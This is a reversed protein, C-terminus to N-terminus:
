DDTHLPMRPWVGARISEVAARMEDQLREAVMEGSSRERREFRGERREDEYRERDQQQEM